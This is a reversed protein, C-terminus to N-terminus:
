RRRYLRELLPVGFWFFSGDLNARIFAKIVPHGAVAPGAVDIPEHHALGNIGKAKITRGIVERQCELGARGEAAQGETSVRVLSM